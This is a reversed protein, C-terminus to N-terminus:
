TSSKTEEEFSSSHHQLRRKEKGSDSISHKHHSKKPKQYGYGEDEEDEEEEMEEEEEEEENEEDASMEMIQRRMFEEDTMETPEADKEKKKKEKKDEKGEKRKGEWDKGDEEEELIDELEEDSDYADPPISLSRPRQKGRDDLDRDRHKRGRRDGKEESLSKELLPRMSSELKTIESPSPPSGRGSIGRESLKMEEEQILGTIESHSSSIGDSSYGTDSLSQPSRSLDHSSNNKTDDYHRSKKIDKIPTIQEGKKQSPKTEKATQSEPETKPKEETTKLQKQTETTPVPATAPTTTKTDAQSNPLLPHLRVAQAQEQMHNRRRPCFQGPVRSVRPNTSLSQQTTPAQHRPSGMPQHKPSPHPVPLPPDDLGGGSMLRQTQCNLCLWEKKETLHPNPNFGCQNCVTAKCQTCTNYNPVAPPNSLETTTCVPCLKSSPMPAIQPVSYPSTPTVGRDPSVSPSRGTRSGSFDVQLNRRSAHQGPSQGGMGSGASGHAMGHGSGPGHGMGSGQSSQMHRPSVPSEHTALRYPEAARSGIGGGTGMGAGIGGGGM